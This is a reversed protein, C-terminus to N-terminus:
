NVSLSMRYCSPYIEKLNRQSFMGSEMLWCDEFDSSNFSCIENNNGHVSYFRQFRGRGLWPWSAKCGGSVAIGECKGAFKQSFDIGSVVPINGIESV